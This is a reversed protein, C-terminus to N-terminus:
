MCHPTPTDPQGSASPSPPCNRSAYADDELIAAIRTMWELILQVEHGSVRLRFTADRRYVLRNEVSYITTRGDLIGGAHSIAQELRHLVGRHGDTGPLTATQIRVARARADRAILIPRLDESSALSIYLFLRGGGQYRLDYTEGSMMAMDRSRWRGTVKLMHLSGEPGTVTWAFSRALEYLDVLHAFRGAYAVRCLPSTIPVADMTATIFALLPFVVAAPILSCLSLELQTSGRKAHGLPLLMAFSVVTLVLGLLILQWYAGPKHRLVIILCLVSVAPLVLVWAPCHIGQLPIELWIVIGSFALWASLLGLVVRGIWRHIAVVQSDRAPRAASLSPTHRTLEELAFHIFHGLM